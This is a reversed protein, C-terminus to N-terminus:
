NNVDNLTVLDIHSNFRRRQHHGGGTQPRTAIEPIIHVCGVLNGVSFVELAMAALAKRVQVINCILDMKGLNEPITTLV